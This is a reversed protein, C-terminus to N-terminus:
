DLSAAAAVADAGDVDGLLPIEENPPVKDEAANRRMERGPPGMARRIAAWFNCVGVLAGFTAPGKAGVRTPAVLAIAANPLTPTVNASKEAVLKGEIFLWRRPCSLGRVVTSAATCCCDGLACLVSRTAKAGANVWGM